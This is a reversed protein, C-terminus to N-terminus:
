DDPAMLSCPVTEKSIVAAELYSCTILMNWHSNIKMSQVKNVNKSKMRWMFMDICIIGIDYLYLDIQQPKLCSLYIYISLLAM